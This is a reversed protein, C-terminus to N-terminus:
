LKSNNNTLNNNIQGYIQGSLTSSSRSRNRVGHPQNLPWVSYPSNGSYQIPNRQSRRISAYGFQSASDVGLFDGNNNNMQRDVTYVGLNNLASNRLNATIDANDLTPQTLRRKLQPQFKNGFAHRTITQYNADAEM